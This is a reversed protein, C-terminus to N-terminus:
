PTWGTRILAEAELFWWATVSLPWDEPWGTDAMFAQRALSMASPSAALGAAAAGDTTVMPVNGVIWSDACVACILAADERQQATFKRAM